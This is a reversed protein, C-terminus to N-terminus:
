PEVFRPPAVSWDPSRRGQIETFDLRELADRNEAMRLEWLPFFDQGIDLGEQYGHPGYVIEHWADIGAERLEEALECLDDLQIMVQTRKQQPTM